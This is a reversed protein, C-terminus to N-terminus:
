VRLHERDRIEVRNTGRLIIGTRRKLQHLQWQNYKFHEFPARHHSIPLSIIYYVRHNSLINHDKLYKHVSHIQKFASRFNTGDNRTKCYKLEVLMLWGKANDSKKASCMCECQRILHGNDNLLPNLEFNVSEFEVRSHNIIELGEIDNPRRVSFEVGRKHEGKKSYQTYDVVYLNTRYDDVQNFYRKM